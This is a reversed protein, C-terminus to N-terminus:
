PPPPNSTAYPIIEREIWEREAAGISAPGYLVYNGLISVDAGDIEPPFFNNDINGLARGGILTGWYAANVFNFQPDTLVAKGLSNVTAFTIVYLDAKDHVREWQANRYVHINQVEKWSASPEDYTYAVIVDKWAGGSYVSM